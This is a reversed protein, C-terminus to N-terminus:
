LPTQPFSAANDFDDIRLMIYELGTIAWQEDRTDNDRMWRRGKTLIM